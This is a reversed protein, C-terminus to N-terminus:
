DAAAERIKEIGKMAKRLIDADQKANFHVFPKVSGRYAMPFSEIIDSTYFRLARSSGSRCHPALRGLKQYKTSERIWLSTCSHKSTEILSYM